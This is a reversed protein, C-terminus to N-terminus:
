VIKQLGFWWGDLLFGYHESGMMPTCSTDRCYLIYNGIQLWKYNDGNFYNM